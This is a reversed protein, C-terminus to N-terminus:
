RVVAWRQEVAKNWKRAETDVLVALTTPPMRVHANALDNITLVADVAHAAYFANMTRLAELATGWQGALLAEHATQWVDDQGNRGKAQPNITTTTKM